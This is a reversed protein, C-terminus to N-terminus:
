ISVVTLLLLGETLFSVVGGGVGGGTDGGGIGGGGGASIVDGTTRGGTGGSGSGHWCSCGGPHASRAVGSGHTAGGEKGPPSFTLFSINIPIDYM